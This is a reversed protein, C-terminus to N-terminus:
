PVWNREALRRMIAVGVVKAQQQETLKAFDGRKPYDRLRRAEADQRCWRQLLGFFAREEAGSAPVTKNGLMLSNHIEVPTYSTTIYEAYREVHIADIFHVGIWVQDSAAVHTGRIMTIPEALDRLYPSQDLPVKTFDGFKKIVGHWLAYTIATLCVL